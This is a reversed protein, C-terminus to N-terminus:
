NNKGPTILAQGLSYYLVLTMPATAAVLAKRGSISFPVWFFTMLIELPAPSESNM